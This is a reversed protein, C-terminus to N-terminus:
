SPVSALLPVLLFSLRFYVCVFCVYVCARAYTCGTPQHVQEITSRYSGARLPGVAIPVHFVFPFPLCFPVFRQTSVPLNSRYSRVRASPCSRPMPPLRQLHHPFSLFGSEPCSCLIQNRSPHVHEKLEVVFFITRSSLTRKQKSQNINKAQKKQPRTWWLKTTISSAQKAGDKVGLLM